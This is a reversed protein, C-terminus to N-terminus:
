GSRYAAKPLPKVDYVDDRTYCLRHLQIYHVYLLPSVPLLFTPRPILSFPPSLTLFFHLALFGRYLLSSKYITAV